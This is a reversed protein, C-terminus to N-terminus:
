KNAILIVDNLGETFAEVVIRKIEEKSETITKANIVITEVLNKIDVKISNGGGGSVVTPQKSQGGGMPTTPTTPKPLNNTPLSGETKTPLTTTTKTEQTFKIEPFKFSKIGLKKAAWRAVDGLANILNELFSLALKIPTLLANILFQGIKSNLLWKFGRFIYDLLGFILKAIIGLIPVLGKIINWIKKFLPMTIKLWGKIIGILSNIIPVLDNKVINIIFGIIENFVTGGQSLNNFFGKILNNVWNIGAVLIDVFGKVKTTKGFIGFINQLVEKVSNFIALGIDKLTGFLADFAQRVTENTKYLKMLTYVLGTAATLIMVIPSARLVMNFVKQAISVSNLASAAIVLAKGFEIIKDANKEVWTFSTELKTMIKDLYPLLKQIGKYLVGGIREQFDGWRMALQKLPGTGAMAAAKAAGGYEKELEALIIKQAEAKRGTEVLYKIMERQEDTFQVGVRSLATVGRIPDNLAKGLQIASSKLDQGLKASLDLAVKEAEKFVEGQIDTFTLLQATVNQLIDEDGYLSQSQLYSAYKTLEEFTLGVAHKTSELGAKVQAEAKQQVDWAKITDAGIKLAAGIGAGIAIISSLNTKTKSLKSNLESVEKTSKKVTQGFKTVVKSGFAGKVKQGFKGLRGELNATTRNIKEVVPSFKDTLKIYYEVGVAM